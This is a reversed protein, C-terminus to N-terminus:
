EYSNSSYANAIFILGDKKLFTLGFLLGDAYTLYATIAIMALGITTMPYIALAPVIKLSLRKKKLLVM